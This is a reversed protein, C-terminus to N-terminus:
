TSLAKNKIKNEADNMKNQIDSLVPCLNSKIRNKLENHFNTNDVTDKLTKRLIDSVTSPNSVRMLTESWNRVSLRTLLDSLYDCDILKVVSNIDVSNIADKVSSKSLIESDVDVV